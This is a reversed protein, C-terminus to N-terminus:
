FTGGNIIPMEKAVFKDTAEDYVLTSNDVLNSADVDTLNRLQTVGLNSPQIGVTRIVEKAKNNISVRNKPTSTVNVKISM